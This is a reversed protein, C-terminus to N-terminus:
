PPSDAFYGNVDIVLDVQGASSVSAALRGDESLGLIANNARVRGATFNVTSTAPQARDAPFLNIYGGSTPNVATVNLSVARATPPIGCAGAVAFSRVAGPLLPSQGQRTDVVRCPAVTYFDTPGPEYVRIDDVFWSGAAPGNPTYSEFSLQIWPEGLFRSLDITVPRWDTHWDTLQRVHWYGGEADKIWIQVSGFSPSEFRQWFTLLLSSRGGLDLKPSLLYSTVDTGFFAPINAHSHTPSHSFEDGGIIGWGYSSWNLDDNGEVTDEFIVAPLVSPNVVSFANSTATSEPTGLGDSNFGIVKVQYGSGPVLWAPPVFAFSDGALFSAISLNDGSATRVLRVAFEVCGPGASWRITQASGKVWTEGGAPNVMGVTCVPPPTCPLTTFTGGNGLTTGQANSAVARFHYTTGCSLGTLVEGLTVASHKNGIVRSPTQFGYASSTGWQFQASTDSGNATVSVKLLAQDTRVSSATATGVTPRATSAGCVDLPILKAVPHAERFRGPTTASEAQVVVRAVTGLDLHNVDDSFDDQDDDLRWLLHDSFEFLRYDQASGTSQGWQLTATGEGEDCVPDGMTASFSGPAGATSCVTGPVIVSVNWSSISGSNNRASLQYVTGGGPTLNSDVFSRETINDYTASPMYAGIRQLSYSQAGLAETWWLRVKAVGNECFPREAWLVPRHPPDGEAAPLRCEDSAIPIALEIRSSHREM